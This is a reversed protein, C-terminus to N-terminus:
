YYYRFNLFLTINNIVLIPQYILYLAYYQFWKELLSKFTILKVTFNVCLSCIYMYNYMNTLSGRSCVLHYQRMYLRRLSGNRVNWFGLRKRSVRLFTIIQSEKTYFIQLGMLLPKVLSLWSKTLPPRLNLGSDYQLMTCM